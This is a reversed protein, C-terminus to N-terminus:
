NASEVLNDRPRFVLGIISYFGDESDETDQTFPEM